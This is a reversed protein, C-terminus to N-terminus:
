RDKLHIHWLYGRPDGWIAALYGSPVVPYGGALSSWQNNVLGWCGWSCGSDVWSIFVGCWEAPVQQWRTVLLIKQSKLSLTQTFFHGGHVWTRVRKRLLWKLQKSFPLVCLIEYKETGKKQFHLNQQTASRIRSRPSFQSIYFTTISFYQLPFHFYWSWVVAAFFCSIRTTGSISFSLHGLM